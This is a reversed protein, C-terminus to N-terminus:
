IAVCDDQCRALADQLCADYASASRRSTRSCGSAVVTLAVAPKLDLQSPIQGGHREAAWVCRPRWIGAVEQDLYLQARGAVRQIQLERPRCRLWQGRVTVAFGSPAAWRAVPVANVLV